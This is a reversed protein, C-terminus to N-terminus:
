PRGGHRRDEGTPKKPVLMGVALGVLMGLSTGIGTNNEFATGLCMGPCMGETGYDGYKKKTKEKGMASRVDLIAVTLGAAWQAAARIFDSVTNM